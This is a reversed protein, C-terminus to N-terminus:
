LAIREEGGCVVGHAVKKKRADLICAGSWLRLWYFAKKKTQKDAADPRQSVDGIFRFGRGHVTKILRQERGGDGLINRVAKVRSSLASDSVFRDTWINDFLDKKTVVRDRNEVLYLLVDFVQPEMRSTKGNQRLEYLRTDLEFDEFIYIM